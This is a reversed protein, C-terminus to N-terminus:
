IATPSVRWVCQHAGDRISTQMEVDERTNLLFRILARDLQCLIPHSTVLDVYPCNAFLLAYEGNERQWRAMYGHENLFHVVHELFVDPSLAQPSDLQADQAMRRAVEEVVKHLGQPDVDALYNLLHHLLHAYNKPFVQYADPTLSYVHQPRGAGSRRRVGDVRILGDGQLIDLHHRVSVPAMGLIDALEAVTAKGREQIIQLIRQRINQM